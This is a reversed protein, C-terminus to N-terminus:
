NETSKEEEPARSKLVPVHVQHTEAEKFEQIEAIENRQAEDSSEAM